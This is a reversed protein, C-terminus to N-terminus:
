TQEHEHESSHRGPPGRQLRLNARLWLLGFCSNWWRMQRRRAHAPDPQVINRRSLLRSGRIAGASRAVQRAVTSQDVVVGRSIRSQGDHLGELLRRRLRTLRRVLGRRRLGDTLVALRAFGYARVLGRSVLLAVSNAGPFWLLYM